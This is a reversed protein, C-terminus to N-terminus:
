VHKYIDKIIDRIDKHFGINIGKEKRAKYTINSLYPAMINIGNLLEVDICIDNINGSVIMGKEGVIIIDNAIMQLVNIDDKVIVVKDSSRLNSIIKKLVKSYKYDLSSFLDDFVIIKADTVLGKIINVICRETKSLTNNLRSYFSFNLGFLEFYKDVRDSITKRDIKLYENMIRLDDKVRRTYLYDDLKIYSIMRNNIPMEDVLVDGSFMKDSGNLIDVLELAKNGVVAHVFGEKFTYTFHKISKKNTIDRFVLAM